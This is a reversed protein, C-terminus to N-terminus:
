TKSQNSYCGLLGNVAWGICTRTTYPSGEHSPNVELSDLAEPVDAAILLGM